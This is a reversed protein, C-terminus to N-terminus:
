PPVMFIDGIGSSSKLLGIKFSARFFAPRGIVAFLRESTFSIIFLPMEIFASLRPLIPLITLVLEDTSIEVM